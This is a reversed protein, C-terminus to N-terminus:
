EIGMDMPMPSGELNMNGMNQTKDLIEQSQQQYHEALAQREESMRKLIDPKIPIATLQVYEEPTILAPEINYQYQLNLLEKAQQEAVARSIVTNGSGSIRVDIAVDGYKKANFPKFGVTGDEGMIRIYRTTTYNNKILEVMLKTLRVIFDEIYIGKLNDRAAAREQLALIGSAATVSGPSQGVYAQHMGMTERIDEKLMEIAKFASIPLEETRGFEIANVDNVPFVAGPKGINQAVVKPDAGSSISLLIPKNVILLANQIVLQTLKNMAEQNPIIQRPEGFGWFCNDVEHDYLVAFPLENRMVGEIHYLLQEDAYYSVDVTSDMNLQWYEVLSVLGNEATQTQYTIQNVGTFDTDAKVKAVAQKDFAPNAKVYELPVRTVVACKRMREIRDVGPQPFFNFCPVGEVRIDGKWLTGPVQSGEPLTVPKLTGGELSNDWFVKAIYTGYLLGHKVATNIIRGINLEDWKSDIVMQYARVAEEDGPERPFLSPAFRNAILNAHRQEVTAYVFNSVPTPKWAPTNESWQFGQYYRDIKHWEAIFRAKEAKSRMLFDHVVDFSVPKGM